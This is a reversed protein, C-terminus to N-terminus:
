TLSSREKLLIHLSRVALEAAEHKVMDPDIAATGADNGLEPLSLAPDQGLERLAVRKAELMAKGTLFPLNRTLADMESQMAQIADLDVSSTM